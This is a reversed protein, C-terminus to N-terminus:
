SSRPPGEDPVAPDAAAESSPETDPSAARQRYAEVEPFLELQRKTTLYTDLLPMLRAADLAGNQKDLESLVAAGVIRCREDHRQAMLLDRKKRAEQLRQELTEVEEIVTDLKPPM